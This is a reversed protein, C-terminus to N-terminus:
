KRMLRLLNKGLYWRWRLKQIFSVGGAPSLNKNHRRYAILPQDIYYTKGYIDNVIGFWMDHMPVDQPIPLFHDLMLRRFALTCGMYNNQILNQLVGTTFRGHRAFFSDAVIRGGADIIQADSTVLTVGPNLSFVEMIKDVKGPLWLDDQDSLFLIDGQALELAKAFSALVGLNHENRYLRVRYDGMNQLLEASADQSADDVIVVEDTARLQRLISQLQSQLFAEGNYVTLCVSIKVEM